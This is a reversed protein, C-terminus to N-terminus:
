AVTLLLPVDAVSGGPGRNIAERQTIWSLPDLVLHDPYCIQFFCGSLIQKLHAEGERDDLIRITRARWSPRRKHKGSVKTPLVKLRGKALEAHKETM